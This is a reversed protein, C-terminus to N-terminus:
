YKAKKNFKSISYPRGHMDRRGKEKGKKKTFPMDCTM